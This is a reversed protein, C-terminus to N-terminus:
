PRMGLERRVRRGEARVHALGAQREAEVRRRYRHVAVAEPDVPLQARAQAREYAARLNANFAEGARVMVAMMHGYGAGLQAMQRVFADNDRAASM